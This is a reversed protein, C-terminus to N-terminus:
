YQWRGKAYRFIETVDTQEVITGTSAVAAAETAGEKRFKIERYTIKGIADKGPEEHAICTRDHGYSLYEGVVGSGGKTWAIHAENYTNRDHLKGMWEDCFGRFGRVDEGEVMQQVADKPTVPTTAAAKKPAAKKAVAKKAPTPADAARALPAPPVAVAIALAVLALTVLPRLATVAFMAARM